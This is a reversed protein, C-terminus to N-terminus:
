ESTKPLWRKLMAILEEAKFPKSIFDDMGTALCKEKADSLANATLACIPTRPLSNQRENTRIAQTAEYGDMVPMLCDMLILDYQKEKLKELALKGNEALDVSLGFSGLMEQGLMQNILTDEVLLVQGNLTSPLPTASPIDVNTERSSLNMLKLLKEALLDGDVPKRMFDTCPHYSLKQEFDEFDGSSAILTPYEYGRESLQKLLEIGDMGPIMYDLILADPPAGQELTSIVEQPKSILTTKAEWHKLLDEYIKLNLHNDDVILIHQDKLKNFERSPQEKSPTLELEFWFCSGKGEESSAVLSGGMLDILKKSISLGLGTGGFKRTTSEDAQTFEYFLESLKEEPIGIGTDQVDIRLCEKDESGEKHSVTIVVHGQQTFKIANSVLNTLVQKIRVSDGLYYRPMQAPINLIVDLGKDHAIVNFLQAVHTIDYVLDFRAREITLKGAEIKSFDLIDNLITLLMEGSTQIAELYEHQKTNLQTQKLLQSMGLVGNMPTRIEHSMNALFQSKSTNASQAQKALKNARETEQQLQHIAQQQQTIDKAIGLFGTIEGTADRVATVTLNVQIHRRNKTIYTWEREEYLGQKALAVFAEFGVVEYGLEQTLEKSRAIVEEQLHIKAPTTKGVMEDAHYGLMREAGSNFVTITGDLDTAIISVLTAAELLSETQALANKLQKEHQRQQSVDRLIATFITQNDMQVKAISIEVPFETGDQKRANVKRNSMQTKFDSSMAFSKMHKWHYPRSKLPLLIDLQHNILEGPKYGFLLETSPNTFLIKNQEDVGIISDTASNFVGKFLKESKELAQEVKKRETIDSEIAMFQTIKGNEDTIPEIDLHIWYKRGSKSYNIIDTQVPQGTSLQDRIYQVTKPNTEKGQLIHGPKKGLMEELTYGTIREFGDNVWETFGNANTIIVGNNTRSAIIALKKAEREQELAYEKAKEARETESIAKLWQAQLRVMIQNFARIVLGLEDKTNISIPQNINGKLLESASTDLTIVTKIVSKYFGYILGIAITLTLLVMISFFIIQKYYTNVRHQLGITLQKSAENWLVNAHQITNQITLSFREAQPESYYPQHVQIDLERIAIELNLLLPRLKAKLERNNSHNFATQLNINLRQQQSKMLVSKEMLSKRAYSIVDVESHLSLDKYFARQIDILDNQIQYLSILVTDMLYYTDLEPDLILNSHDGVHKNLKDISNELKRFYNLQGESRTENLSKQALEWLQKTQSFLGSTTLSDSHKHDTITLRSFSDRARILLKKLSEDSLQAVRSHQQSRAGLIAHLNMKFTTLDTLYETGEIEKSTFASKERLEILLYVATMVLPIAFVAILLTFKKLYPLSGMFETLLQTIRQLM